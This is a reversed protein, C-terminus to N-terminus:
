KKTSVHKIVSVKPKGIANQIVEVLAGAKEYGLAAGLATWDSADLENGNQLKDVASRVAQSSMIIQQVNQPLADYWKRVRESKLIALSDSTGKEVVNANANNLRASSFSNAAGAKNALIQSEVLRARYKYFDRETKKLRTDESKNLYDAYLNELEAAQMNGFYYARLDNMVSDNELIWAKNKANMQYYRSEAEKLQEEYKTRVELSRANAARERLEAIDRQMQTLNRMRQNEAQENILGIQSQQLALNSLASASDNIMSSYQSAVQSQTPLPSPPSSPSIANVHSAAGVQSGGNIFASNIGAQKLGMKFLSPSDQTLQRQREYDLLANQQNLQNQYAMLEKQSKLQQKQDNHGFGLLGAVGGLASGIAGVSSAGSAIGSLLSLVGM